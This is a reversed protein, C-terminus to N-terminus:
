NRTINVELAVNPALFMDWIVESKRREPCAETRGSAVLPAPPTVPGRLVRLEPRSDSSPQAVVRWGRFRM